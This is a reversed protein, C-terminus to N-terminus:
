GPRWKNLDSRVEPGPPPQNPLDNGTRRDVAAYTEGHHGVRLTATDSDTVATIVAPRWRVVGGITVKHNVTRNVKAPYVNV